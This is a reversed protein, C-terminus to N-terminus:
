HGQHAAHQGGKHSRLLELSIDDFQFLRGGYQDAFAQAAKQHAFTALAPGMAAKRNSGYVYWASEADVFQEDDPRFWDSSGMDHVLLQVVQRRNDPQLAFEFLDRTSCFKLRQETALDATGKPGPQQIVVMGCLHCRDQQEIQAIPSVNHAPAESCGALMLGAALFLFTRM